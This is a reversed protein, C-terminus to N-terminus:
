LYYGYQCPDGAMESLQPYCYRRYREGRTRADYKQLSCWQMHVLRVNLVSKQGRRELVENYDM